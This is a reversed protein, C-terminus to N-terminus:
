SHKWSAESKQIPFPHAETNFVWSDLPLLSDNSFLLYLYKLTEALFFSQQVDDQAPSQSYVDKIGSFGNETRCYAELAQVADWGWERYKKNKTFRWMYFYTEIVEPRLIYYKENQRMAKAETHGEFRFAEPGLRTSSRNYSEHCTRAIEEGLAIYKKPDSSGEAGLAFMGGAFCALHDMKHEVRNVKYEALYKFGSKSTQLLTAEIHMVAEDYMQRAVTDKKGTYLWTKLLYEYFSDGMAGVSFHHQGWKGTRPNLYIPYLGQPRKLQQLTERIKMVKQEYIKNGTINSLYIFELHISGFEALISCGGSAWGWNHSGGTKLNIMSQPIGTPTDFAPLLKNGVDIAKEKFMKDGTLAYASLFGGLFRINTEFVSLDASGDFTFSTAIWDRGKKYDEHLGMLYLTDLGDVITAGLSLSGFIGASHSRKSIPRLENAGWAYKAYNDWAFKMMMITSFVLAKM